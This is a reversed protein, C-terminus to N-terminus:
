PGDYWLKKKEMSLISHSPVFWITEKHHTKRGWHNIVLVSSIALWCLRPNITIEKSGKDEMAGGERGGRRRWNKVGLRGGGTVREKRGRWSELEFSIINKIMVINRMKKNMWIIEVGGCVCKEGWFFMSMECVSWKRGHERNSTWNCVQSFGSFKERRLEWIRWCIASWSLNM